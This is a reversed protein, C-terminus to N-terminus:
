APLRRFDLRLVERPLGSTNVSVSHLCRPDLLIVDGPNGTLEVVQVPIGDVDTGRNMLTDIREAPSGPSVLTEFWPDAQALLGVTETPALVRLEDATVLERNDDAFAAVLTTDKRGHTHALREACRHSGSVVVTAGGGRPSVPALFVFAFVTWPLSHGAAVPEDAHWSKHPVNWTSPAGPFSLLSYWDPKAVWRAHGLADHVSEGLATELPALVGSARLSRMVPTMASLRSGRRDGAPKNDNAFWSEPSERRIGFRETIERWLRGRARGVDDDEIAGAIRLLGRNAFEAHM